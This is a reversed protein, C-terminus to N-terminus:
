QMKGELKHVQVQFQLCPNCVASGFFRIWRFVSIIRFSVPDNVCFLALGLPTCNRTTHANMHLQCTMYSKLNDFESDVRAERERISSMRFPSLESFGSSQPFKYLLM